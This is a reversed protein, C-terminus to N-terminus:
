VSNSALAAAHLEVVLGVTLWLTVLLLMAGCVYLLVQVLKPAQFLETRPTAAADPQGQQLFKLRREKENTYALLLPILLGFVVQVYTVTQQCHLQAIPQLQQQAPLAPMLFQVVRCSLTEMLEASDRVLKQGYSSTELKSCLSPTLVMFYATMQLPLVALLTRYCLPVTVYYWLSLLSGSGVVIHKCFSVGASSSGDVPDDVWLPIGLVGFVGYLLQFQAMAGERLTSSLKSLMGHAALEGAIAVAYASAVLGAASVMKGQASMSVLHLISFLVHLYPLRGCTSWFTRRFASEVERDYFTLTWSSFEKPPM